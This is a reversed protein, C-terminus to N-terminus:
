RRARVAIAADLGGDTASVRGADLIASEPSAQCAPLVRLFRKRLKHGGGRGNEDRIRSWSSPTGHSRRQGRGRRAWAACGSVAAIAPRRCRRPSRVPWRREREGAAAAAAGAAGGGATSRPRSTIAGPSPQADHDPGVNGSRTWRRASGTVPPAAASAPAPTRRRCQCSSRSASAPCRGAARLVVRAVVLHRPDDVDRAREVRPQAGSPM